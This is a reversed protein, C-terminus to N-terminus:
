DPEGYIRRIWQPEFPEPWRAGGFAIRELDLHHPDAVWCIFSGGFPLGPHDFITRKLRMGNDPLLADPTHIVTNCGSRSWTRSLVRMRDRQDLVCLGHDGDGSFLRELAHYEIPDPREPQPGNDYERHCPVGDQECFGNDRADLGVAM